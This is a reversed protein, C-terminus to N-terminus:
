DKPEPTPMKPLHRMIEAVQQRSLRSENTSKRLEDTAQRMDTSMSRVEVALSEYRKSDAERQARAEDFSRSITDNLSAERRSASTTTDHYMILSLGGLLLMASSNGLLAWVGRLGMSGFGSGGAEMTMTTAYIPPPTPALPPTNPPLVTTPVLIPTVPPLAADAMMRGTFLVSWLSRGPWAASRECGLIGCARVCPYITLGNAPDTVGNYGFLPLTEM